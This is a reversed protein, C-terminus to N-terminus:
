TVLEAKVSKDPDTSAILGLGSHAEFLARTIYDNVSFGGAAMLRNKSAKELSPNSYKGDARVKYHQTIITLGAFPDYPAAAEVKTKKRLGSFNLGGASAGDTKVVPQAGTEQRPAEAHTPPAIRDNALSDKKRTANARALRAAETPDESGLISALTGKSQQEREAKSAALEQELAEKSHKSRNKLEEKQQEVMWKEEEERRHNEEIQEKHVTQYKKLKEKAEKDNEDVILRWCLEEKEEQYDNFDRLTEFDDERRNLIEGVRKRIDCEREIRLDAFKQTRFDKRRAQRTRCGAIPCPAPGAHYIREVCSTCM